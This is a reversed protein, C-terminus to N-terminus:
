QLPAGPAHVLNLQLIAADYVHPSRCVFFLLEKHDAAELAKRIRVAAAIPTAIEVLHARGLGERDAYAALANLTAQATATIEADGKRIRGQGCATFVHKGAFVTDMVLYVQGAEDPPLHVMFSQIM